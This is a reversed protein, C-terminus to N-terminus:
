EIGIHSEFDKYMFLESDKQEIWALRYYLM